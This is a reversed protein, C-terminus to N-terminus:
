TLSEAGYTKEYTRSCARTSRRRRAPSARPTIVLALSFVASAVDLDNSGAGARAGDRGGLWSSPRTYRAQRWRLTTMNLVYYAVDSETNTTDKGGGGARADSVSRGRGYKGQAMYVSGIGRPHECAPRRCGSRSEVISKAREYM